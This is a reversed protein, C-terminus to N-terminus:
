FSWYNYCDYKEVLDKLTFTRIQDQPIKLIAQVIEHLISASNINSNGLCVKCAVTKYDEHPWDQGKNLGLNVMEPFAYM